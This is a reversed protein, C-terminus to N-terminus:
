FMKLFIKFFKQSRFKEFINIPFGTSFSFNQSRFNQSWCIEVPNEIFMKSFFRDLFFWTKKQFHELFKKERLIRKNKKCFTLRWWIFVSAWYKQIRSVLVMKLANPGSQQILTVGTWIQFEYYIWSVMHNGLVRPQNGLVRPHNWCCLYSLIM